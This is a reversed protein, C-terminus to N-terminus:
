RVSVWVKAPLNKYDTIPLTAVSSDLDVVLNGRLADSDSQLWMTAGATLAITRIEGPALTVKSAVADQNSTTLSYQLPQKSSNAISLRTVGSQPVRFAREGKLSPSAQLWAFDTAPSKKKDTRPLRIAARVPQDASVFAVYDGDAIGTIPLDTVTGSTVTQRLVTGFTKATAGFIQATVTVRKAVGDADNVRPVFVRLMPSQDAYDPRTKIVSLADANGRLLLGPIVINKGLETSPAIFDSGGAITGRVVREQIWGAV